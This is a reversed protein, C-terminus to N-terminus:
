LRLLVKVKKLDALQSPSVFTLVAASESALLEDLEGATSAELPTPAGDRFNRKQLQREYQSFSMFLVRQMFYDLLAQDSDNRLARLRVDQVTIVGGLFARRLGDLNISELQVAENVVVLLQPAPEASKAAVGPLLLFLILLLQKM